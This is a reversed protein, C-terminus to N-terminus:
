GPHFLPYIIGYVIICVILGYTIGATKLAISKANVANYDDKLMLKNVLYILFIMVAAEILVMIINIFGLLSDKHLGDPVLRLNIYTSAYLLCFLTVLFFFLNLVGYLLYKVM